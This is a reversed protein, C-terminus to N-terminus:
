RRGLRPGIQRYVFNDFRLHNTNDRTGYMGLECINLGGVIANYTLAGGVINFSGIYVNDFYILFTSKLRRLKIKRYTTGFTSAGFSRSRISSGNFEEFILDGGLTFKVGIYADVDYYIGFVGYLNQNTNNTRTIAEMELFLPNTPIDDRHISATLIAGGTIVLQDSLLQCGTSGSEEEIWNNGVTNSTGRTFQDEFYGAM